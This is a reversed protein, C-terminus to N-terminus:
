SYSFWNPSAGDPLSCLMGPRHDSSMLEARSYTMLDLNNGRFLIRDIRYVHVQACQPDSFTSSDVMGTWAPVRMKESSDYRQTGLDYRYTPRFLLPGEDYGVFAQQSDM